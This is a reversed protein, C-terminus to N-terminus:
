ILHGPVRDGAVDVFGGIFDRLQLSAGCRLDIGIDTLGVISDSKKFARTRLLILHRTVGDKKKSMPFAAMSKTM